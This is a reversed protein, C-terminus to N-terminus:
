AKLGHQLIEDAFALRCFVIGYLLAIMQLAFHLFRRLIAVCKGSM